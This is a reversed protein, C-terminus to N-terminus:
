HRTEAGGTPLAQLLERCAKECRECVEACIRCHEHKGAHKRCEAACSRCAEACAELAARWLNPEPRAQRAIMRGAAGCLDACDLNLRICQRLEAIAEEGICADACSFCVQQAEFCAAICAQIVDFHSTPKQPHTKLMETIASM